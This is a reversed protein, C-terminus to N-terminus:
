LTKRRRQNKRASNRSQSPASPELITGSVLNKVEEVGHAHESLQFDAEEFELLNEKTTPPLSMWEQHVERLEAAVPPNCNKMQSAYRHQKFIQIARNFPQTRVLVKPHVQGKVHMIRCPWATSPLELSGFYVDNITAVVLVSVM